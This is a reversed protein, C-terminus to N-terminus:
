AEGHVLYNAIEKELYYNCNDSVWGFQGVHNIELFVFQDDPTVIIDISGTNMRLKKTLTILKTKIEEPLIYPVNRNPKEEDYNRFDVKTKENNQSFIAMPFFNEHFYFIRLEYAKEIQEQIQTPFFNKSLPRLNDESISNTSGIFYFKDNFKESVGTQLFKTVFKIKSSFNSLKIKNTEIITLPINLGVEKATKLQFLKDAVTELYYNGLYKESFIFDHFYFKITNWEKQLHIKIADPLNSIGFNLHFDGRRFWSFSISSSDIKKADNKSNFRLHSNNEELCISLEEILDEGNWRIVEKEFHNIWELVDSTSLDSNVSLIFIM